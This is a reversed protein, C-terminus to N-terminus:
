FCFVCIGPLWCAVDDSGRRPWRLLAATWGGTEELFLFGLPITGEEKKVGCVFTVCFILLHLFSFYALYSDSFGLFM